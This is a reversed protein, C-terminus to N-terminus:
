GFLARLSGLVVTLFGGGNSTPLVIEVALLLIPAFTTVSLSSRLGLGVPIDPMAEIRQAVGTVTGIDDMADSAAKWDDMKADRALRALEGSTKKVWNSLAKAKAARFRASFHQLPMLFSITLIFVAILFLMLFPFLWQQYGILVFPQAILSAIWGSLWLIPVAILVGQYALFDGLYRAGGMGDAHGLILKLDEGQRAITRGMWGMAGATGLRHGALVGLFLSSLFHEWDFPNSPLGVNYHFGLFSILLAIGVAAAVGRALGRRLREIAVTDSDDWPVLQDRRMQRNLRLYLPELWVSLWLGLLAAVYGTALMPDKLSGLEEDRPARCNDARWADWSENLTTCDVLGYFGLFGAPDQKGALTPDGGIAAAMQETRFAVRDTEVYTSFIVDLRLLAWITMIALALILIRTRRQSENELDATM